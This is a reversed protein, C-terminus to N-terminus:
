SPTHLPVIRHVYVQCHVYSLVSIGFQRMCFPLFGTCISSSSCFGCVAARIGKMRLRLPLPLGRLPSESLSSSVGGLSGVLVVRDGGGEVLSTPLLLTSLARSLVDRAVRSGGVM